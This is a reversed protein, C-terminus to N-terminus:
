THVDPPPFILVQPAPSTVAPPEEPLSEERDLLARLTGIQEWSFPGTNLTVQGLAYSNLISTWRARLDYDMSEYPEIRDPPPQVYASIVDPNLGWSQFFLVEAPEPFVATEDKHFISWGGSKYCYGPGTWSTEVRAENEM